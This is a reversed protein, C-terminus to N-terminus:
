LASFSLRAARVDVVCSHEGAARGLRRRPLARGRCARPPRARRRRRPGCRELDLDGRRPRAEPARMALLGDGLRRAVFPARPLPDVDGLGLRRRRPAAVLRRRRRRARRVPRGGRGKTAVVLEVVRVIRSPDHSPGGTLPVDLEVLRPARLRCLRLPQRPRLRRPWSLSCRYGAKCRRRHLACGSRLCTAPWIPVSRTASTPSCRTSPRASVPRTLSLSSWAFTAILM